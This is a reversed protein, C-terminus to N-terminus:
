QGCEIPFDHLAQVDHVNPNARRGKAFDCIWSESKGIAKAMDKQKVRRPATTVLHLTREYLSVSQITDSM